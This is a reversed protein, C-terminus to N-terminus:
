RKMAGLTATNHDRLFRNIEDIRDSISDLKRDMTERSTRTEIATSDMKHDLMADNTLALKTEHKLDYYAGIGTAIALLLAVANGIVWKAFKAVIREEVREAIEEILHHHPHEHM